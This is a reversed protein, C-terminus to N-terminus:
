KRKKAPPQEEEEEEDGDEEYEDGAAHLVPLSCSAAQTRMAVRRKAVSGGARAHLAWKLKQGVGCSLCMAYRQYRVRICNGRSCTAADKAMSLYQAM